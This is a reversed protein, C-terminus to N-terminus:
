TVALYPLMPFRSGVLTVPSIACNRAHTNVRAPWACANRMVFRARTIISTQMVSSIALFTFFSFRFQSFLKEGTVLLYTWLHAQFRMPTYLWRLPHLDSIQSIGSTRVWPHLRRCNDPSPSSSPKTRTDHALSRFVLVSRSWQRWRMWSRQGLPIRGCIPLMGWSISVTSPEHCLSM